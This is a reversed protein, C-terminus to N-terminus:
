RLAGLVGGLPAVADPINALGIVLAALMAVAAVVSGIALAEGDSRGDESSAKFFRWSVLASGFAAIACITVITWCWLVRQQVLMDFAQPTGDKLSQLISLLEKQLDSNM